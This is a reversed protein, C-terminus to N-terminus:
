SCLLPAKWVALFLWELRRPLLPTDLGDLLAVHGPSLVLPERRVSSVVPSHPLLQSSCRPSKGRHQLHLEGLGQQAAVGSPFTGTRPGWM